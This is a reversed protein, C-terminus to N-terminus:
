VDVRTVESTILPCVAVKSPNLLVPRRKTATANSPPEPWGSRKRSQISPTSCVGAVPAMVLPLTVTCGQAGSVRRLPQTSRCVCGIDFMANPPLSNWPAGDTPERM